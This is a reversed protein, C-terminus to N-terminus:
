AKTLRLVNDALIRAQRQNEQGVLAERNPYGDFAMYKIHKKDLEKFMDKISMGHLQPIRVDNYNATNRIFWTAERFLEEAMQRHTNVLEFNLYKRLINGRDFENASPQPLQPQPTQPLPAPHQQAPPQLAPLQIGINQNKKEEEVVQIKPAPAPVPVM